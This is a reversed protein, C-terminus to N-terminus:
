NSHALSVSDVLEITFIASRQYGLTRSGLLEERQRTENSALGARLSGPCDGPRARHIDIHCCLRITVVRVGATRATVRTLIIQITYKLM